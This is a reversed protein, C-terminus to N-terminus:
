RMDAVMDCGLRVDSPPFDEMSGTQATYHQHNISTDVLQWLMSSVYKDQVQIAVEPSKANFYCPYRNM